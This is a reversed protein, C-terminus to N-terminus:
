YWSQILLAYINGLEPHFLKLSRRSTSTWNGCIANDSHFILVCTWEQSSDISSSRTSHPFLPDTQSGCCGLWSGKGEPFPWDLNYIFSDKETGKIYLSQLSARPPFCRFNQQVTFKPSFNDKKRDELMRQAPPSGALQTIIADGMVDKLSSAFIVQCQAQHSTSMCFFSTKRNHRCDGNHEDNTCQYSQFLASSPWM